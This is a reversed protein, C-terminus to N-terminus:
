SLGTLAIMPSSIIFKLDEDAKDENSARSGSATRRNWVIDPPDASYIIHLKNQQSFEVFSFRRRANPRAM